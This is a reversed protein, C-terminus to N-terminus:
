SKCLEIPSTAATHPSQKWLSVLLVQANKVDHQVKTQQLHRLLIASKQSGDKM